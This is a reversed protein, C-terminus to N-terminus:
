KIQFGANPNAQYKEKLVRRLLKGTELRPLAEEFVISRPMKVKSLHTACYAIIERAMQETANAHDRLQVVAKPVQGFVDDPVGVVAVDQIEPHQSMANEIEQPYVNVGGSLILDTRRDAM